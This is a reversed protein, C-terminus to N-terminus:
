LFFEFSFIKTKNFNNFSSNFKDYIEKEYITPTDSSEMSNMLIKSESSSKHIADRIKKRLHIIWFIHCLKAANTKQNKIYENLIRKKEETYILQSEETEGKKAAISNGM